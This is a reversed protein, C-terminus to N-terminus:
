QILLRFGIPTIKVTGDDQASACFKTTERGGLVISGSTIEAQKPLIGMITKCLVSKGCGSEGAVAVIEGQGISLSLDRM